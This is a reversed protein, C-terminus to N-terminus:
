LLILSLFRYDLAAYFFYSAILLLLNHALLNRQTALYILYVDLSFALFTYSNFLM